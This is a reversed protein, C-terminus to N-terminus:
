CLAATFTFPHEFVRTSPSSCPHCSRRCRQSSKRAPLWQTLTYTFPHIVTPFSTNETYILLFLINISTSYSCVIIIHLTSNDIIFRHMYTILLWSTHPSSHSAHRQIFRHVSVIRSWPVQKGDARFLDNMCKAISM